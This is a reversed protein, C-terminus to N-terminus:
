KVQQFSIELYERKNLLFIFICSDLASNYTSEGLDQFSLYPKSKYIEVLFHDQTIQTLLTVQPICFISSLYTASESKIEIYNKLSLM